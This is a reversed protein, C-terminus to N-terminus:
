ADGAGSDVLIISVNQTDKATKRPKAIQYLPSKRLYLRTVNEKIAGIQFPLTMSLIKFDGAGSDVLIIGAIQISPM